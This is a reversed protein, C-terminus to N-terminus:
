VERGQQDRFKQEIATLRKVMECRDGQADLTVLFDDFDRLQGEATDVSDANHWDDGLFSFSNFVLLSSVFFDKEKSLGDRWSLPMKWGNRAIWTTQTCNTESRGSITSIRGLLLWAPLRITSRTLSSTVKLSWISERPSSVRLTAEAAKCRFLANTLAIPAIYRKDTNKTDEALHKVALFMALFNNLLSLQGWATWGNCLSETNRSIFHDKLVCSHIVQFYSQLSEMHQLKEYHRQAGSLIDKLQEQMDLTRVSLHEKTYPYQTWLREADRCLENVQKEVAKLGHVFEDQRQMQAKIVNLDAQSLDEQEMAVGLVEKEQLWNITEDAEQDFQYVQKAGNLCNQRSNADKNVSNWLEQLDTGKARISATYPHGSRLLEEQTRHVAAVREGAGSLERLVSDFNEALLLCSELDRGFDDSAAVTEKEHLWDSLDDVQRVFRYYRGADVLLSRRRSCEKVLDSYISDLRMQRSNIQTADHNESSLLGDAKYRLREVEKRFDAVEKDLVTLRRIHSEAAAQDKGTDNNAALPMQDRIWQEAEAVESFYQQSDVSHQLRKRRSSCADKLSLLTSNLHDIYSQIDATAYHGHKIMAAGTAETDQISTQRAELEKELNTHKKQLSQAARLSDGYDQSKAQLLKSELWALEEDAATQWEFLQRAEQLNARRIEVPHRLGYFRTEIQEAENIFQQSTWSGMTKLERASSMLEKVRDTRGNIEEWLADLKAMLRDVSELDRGHDDSSLEGEVRDLWRQLDELKRDVTIAEFAERMRSTKLASKKRLEDWGSRLETLQDRVNDKMFHNESILKKGQDEVTVLRKENETLESDFALHKQLKSRLNTPDLYSEDYALQVSFM